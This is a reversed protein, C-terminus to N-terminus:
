IEVSGYCTKITIQTLSEHPQIEIINTDTSNKEIIQLSRDIDVLLETNNNSNTIILEFYSM